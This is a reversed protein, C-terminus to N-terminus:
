LRRAAVRRGWKAAPRAHQPQLGATSRSPIVGTAKHARHVARRRRRPSPGPIAVVWDHTSGTRARPALWALSYTQDDRKKRRLTPAPYSAIM